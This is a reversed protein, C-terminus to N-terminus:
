LSLGKSGTEHAEVVENRRPVILSEPRIEKDADCVRDLLLLGDRFKCIQGEALWREGADEAGDIRLDDEGVRLLERAGEVALRSDDREGLRERIALGKNLAVLLAPCKCTLRQELQEDVRGRSGGGVVDHGLLIDVVQREADAEGLEVRAALGRLIRELLNRIDLPPNTLVEPRPILPIAAPHARKHLLPQTRLRLRRQHLSHLPSKPKLTPSIPLHPFHSVLM